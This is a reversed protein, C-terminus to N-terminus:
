KATGGIMHAVHEANDSLGNQATYVKLAGRKGVSIHAYQDCLLARESNPHCDSRRTKLTIWYTGYDTPEVEVRVSTVGNYANTERYYRIVRIIAKRQSKNMDKGKHIHSLSLYM